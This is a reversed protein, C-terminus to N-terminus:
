KELTAMGLRYFYEDSETWDAAETRKKRAETRARATREAELHAINGKAAEDVAEYYINGSARKGPVRGSVGRIRQRAEQEQRKQVAVHRAVKEADEDVYEMAERAVAECIFSGDRIDRVTISEPEADSYKIIVHETVRHLLEADWYIRGRFKVGQPTVLREAELYRLESLLAWGFVESRAKPLRAYREAPTEGNYGSHPHAHYAPLIENQFVDVFEDMTMLGGTETWHRLARDFNEPRDGPKGGCYGQLQRCYREELTRFFREVPKAWGHYATAHVVKVGLTQMVSAGTLRMYMERMMEPDRRRWYETEEDGEFRHSRYDKGNDIYVWNPAGYINSNKKRAIARALAETITGSNPNTSVCWGVLAGSGIDYWATLWPRVPRGRHDLVFVDFQHHDGFWGENVIDPKRRLGKTMFQAEWAKRGYRAYVRDGPNISAIVRNVAHRNAPAIIGGGAEDCAPYYDAMETQQMAAHAQSDPNYACERCADTGLELADASVMDLIANATLKNGDLDLECIMRRAELCMSRSKGKDDRGSRTLGALGSELYRKELRRLTMGSMGYEVALAEIAATLESVNSRRLGILRLVAQQRGLLKRMGAEGAKKAYAGLDFQEEGARLQVAARGTEEYYRIQAEIPLADLPIRYSIGGNGGISKEVIEAGLGGSRALERIWQKTKGTLMAASASDLYLREM